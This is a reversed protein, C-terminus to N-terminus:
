DVHESGLVFFVYYKMLFGEDVNSVLSDVGVVIFEVDITTYWDRDACALSVFGVIENNVVLHEVIYFDGTISVLDDIFLHEAIEM